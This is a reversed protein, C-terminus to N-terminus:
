RTSHSVGSAVRNMVQLCSAASYGAAGVVIRIEGQLALCAGLIRNSALLAEAQAVGAALAEDRTSAPLMGVDTTVAISGLDSDPDLMDAQARAIAGDQADVANAIITAAADAEAASGALVTVADAIGRSFSRGRWGSTAIGGIGSAHDVVVVGDPAAKALDPVLGISLREGKAVRVAIDGGNNVYLSSLGPASAQTAAAIEDAVSGAVAAMPTIFVARHPWCAALMRRAVPSVFAPPSRGALPRRLLPLEAVLPGLITSFRSIAAEQASRREDPSGRTGILLDIPGHQLHLRGGALIAVQPPPWGTTV